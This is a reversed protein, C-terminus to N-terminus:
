HIADSFIDLAELFHAYLWARRARAKKITHRLSHFFGKNDYRKVVINKGNWTINSVYSADGTKLIRGTGTLGDIREIFDRPKAGACFDRDFEATYYRSKIRITRKSAQLRKKIRRYTLM